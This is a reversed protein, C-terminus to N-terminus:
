NEEYGLLYRLTIIACLGSSFFGMVVLWVLSSTNPLNLVITSEVLENELKEGGGLFLMYLEVGMVLISAFFIIGAVIKKFKTM